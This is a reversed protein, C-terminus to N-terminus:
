IGSLKELVAFNSKKIEIGIEYRKSSYTCLIKLRCFPQILAKAERTIALDALSQLRTEDDFYHVFNSKKEMELFLM